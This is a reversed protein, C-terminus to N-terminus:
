NGTSVPPLQPLTEPAKGADGAPLLRALAEKAVHPGIARLLQGFPDDPDATAKGGRAAEAAQLADLHIAVNAEQVTRLNTFAQSTLTALAKQSEISAKFMEIMQSSQREQAKLLQAIIGSQSADIPADEGAAARIVRRMNHVGAGRDGRTHRIQYRTTVGRSAADEDALECISNAWAEPDARLGALELDTVLEASSGDVAYFGFRSDEGINLAAAWRLISTPTGTSNM